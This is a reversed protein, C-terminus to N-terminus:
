ESLDFVIEKFGKPLKTEISILDRAWDGVIGQENGRFDGGGRGNGECTLLPLPHIKAGEWGQIEPITTKDVYLKKTHNVVYKFVDPDVEVQEPNVKLSEKCRGYINTKRDKCEDAYDGAWVVSQPNGILQNEFTSVFANTLYSHEMLKLGNSYDHSYMWSKVTRKNKGLIAANYYQGM